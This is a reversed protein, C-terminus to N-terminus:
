KNGIVKFGMVKLILMINNLTIYTYCNGYIHIKINRFYYFQYLRYYLATFFYMKSVMNQFVPRISVVHRLFRDADKFWACTPHYLDDTSVGSKAAKEVKRLEGMYTTRIAKIRNKVEDETMQIGLELMDDILKRIAKARADRNRYENSKTNWLCEYKEYINIFKCSKDESWRVTAM